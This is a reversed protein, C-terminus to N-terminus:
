ADEEGDIDDAEQDEDNAYVFTSLIDDIHMGYRISTDPLFTLQPTNRLNLKQALSRRVFGEAKQLAKITEQLHDDDGYCSIYVKCTKLDTGADAGTVSTMMDVRPDKVEHRLIDSLARVIEQNIRTMKISNKKM